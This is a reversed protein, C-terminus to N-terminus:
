SWGGHKVSHHFSLKINVIYPTFPNFHLSKDKISQKSIVSMKVCLGGGGGNQFASFYDSLQSVFLAFQQMWVANWWSIHDMIVQAFYWVASITPLPLNHGSVFVKM